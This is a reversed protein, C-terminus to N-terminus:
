TQLRAARARIEDTAARIEELPLDDGAEFLELWARARTLSKHRHYIGLEILSDTQQGIPDAYGFASNLVGYVRAMEIDDREGTVPDIGFAEAIREFLELGPQHIEGRRLQNITNRAVGVTDVIHQITIGRDRSQRLLENMAAALRRRGKANM